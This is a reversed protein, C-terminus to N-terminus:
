YSRSTKNIYDIVRPALLTFVKSANMGSKASAEIFSLGHASAFQHGFEYGIAEALDSKNGVLIIPVEGAGEKIEEIWYDLRRYTSSSSKDYVLVAGKAGVYYRRRLPGFQEQGATDWIQLKLVMDGMDIEQIFFNVGITSLYEPNFFGKCFRVILSTKGVSAEGVVVIKAAHTFSRPKDQPHTPIETM